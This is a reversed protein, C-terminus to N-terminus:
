FTSLFNLYAGKSTPNTYSVSLDLARLGMPSIGVGATYTPQSDSYAMNKKYGARIKLQRLIDIEAGVRFMQSNDDFDVFKSEETLDYDASLTFFDAVIGAGVTYQPKVEYTYTKNNAAKSTVDRSFMNMATIGVRMPGYFWVGGFDMNFMTEGTLNDGVDFSEFTSLNSGKLGYAYTYLRQLKPSIGIAIHQRLYYAYKALTLGVEGVGVSVINIETNDADTLTNGTSPVTPSVYSETYLKGFANLSVYSNPLAIAAAAGIDSRIQTDALDDMAQQAATPDTNEIASALSKFASTADDPDEYAIGFGPLLLGLDDNRRYVATLAPNYFPASLYNASVVGVGGMAFGRAEVAYSAAYTSGSAASVLLALYSLRRTM